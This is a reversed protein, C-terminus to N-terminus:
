FIFFNVDLNQLRRNTIDRFRIDHQGFGALRNDNAKADIGIFSGQHSGFIGADFNTMIVDDILHDFIDFRRKLSHEFRNIFIANQAM